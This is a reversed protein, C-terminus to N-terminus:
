LRVDLIKNRVRQVEEMLEPENVRGVADNAFVAEGDIMTLRVDSARASFVLTPVPSFVPQAHWGGLDVAILDARKGTELSGVEQQLGLAEAGGLTVMRLAAEASFPVPQTGDPSILDERTGASFHAMRMEEFLDMNNNSAVSDTGLGIRIGATLLERLPMIGNKLKLNSKPCHVASVGQVAMSRSDNDSLRICHVLLTRSRLVGLRRLYEIASCAPPDWRIGRQRYSAAIPGAGEKLFESEAASEAAHICVPLGESDAWACSERLLPASVTYPSHPSIGLNLREPVPNCYGQVLPALPAEPRWEGGLLRRLNAIKLRLEGAVKTAEEPIPSFVEQYLVGRMGTILAADLSTGLDMPDGITTIGSRVAEVAGLLASVRIDGLSLAEYKLQTLRRIWTWFPLDELVGRLVSLELHTHANVLGPMVVGNPFNWTVQSGHHQRIDEYPGVAVIRSGNVVVAGDLIPPSTIPLVWRAAIIM